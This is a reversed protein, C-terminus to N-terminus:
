LQSHCKVLRDEKQCFSACNEENAYPVQTWCFVGISLYLKNVDEAAM